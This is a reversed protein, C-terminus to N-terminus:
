AFSRRRLIVDLVIGVAIGCVHLAVLFILPGIIDVVFFGDARMGMRAATLVVPFFHWQGSDLVWLAYISTLAFIVGMLPMLLAVGTWGMAWYVDAFIGPATSTNPNNMAKISFEVGIRTIEPKDPWLLRPVFVAFFHDLSPGPSGSDHWNIALSAANVYSLRLLASQVKEEFPDDVVLHSYDQIIELRELLGVVAYPGYRKVIELRGFDTIPPLVHFVALVVFVTALGKKLTVRHSLWGFAFMLVSTLAHSKNFLALGTIIDFGLLAAPVPLFAPRFRIAYATLMYLSVPALIGLSLISGAIIEANYVGITGPIIILFRVAYGAIAFLVGLVLLKASAAAPDARVVLPPRLLLVTRAAFLVACASVAVILNLKFQENPLARYLVEAHLRSTENVIGPVLSGFGFYVATAIRFWFLSTWIANERQWALLAAGAALVILIAIPAAHNLTDYVADGSIAEAVVLIGAIAALAGIEIVSPVAPDRAAVRPVPVAVAPRLVMRQM